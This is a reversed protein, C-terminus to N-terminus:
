SVFTCCERSNLQLKTENYVSNPSPSRNLWERTLERVLDPSHAAYAKLTSAVLHAAEPTELYVLSHLVGLDNAQISLSLSRQVAGWLFPATKMEELLAQYGQEASGYWGEIQRYLYMGVFYDYFRELRFEVNSESGQLRSVMIQADVLRQFSERILEGTDLEGTDYVRAKLDNGARDLDILGITKKYTGPGGAFLPVLERELMDKDQPKIRGTRLLAGMYEDIIKEAATEPPLAKGACTNAIMWLNLPERILDRVVPKLEAYGTKLGYKVRYLDYVASLEGWSFQGLDLASLEPLEDILTQMGAPAVYFRDNALRKGTSIKRWTEPRSTIMVKLWPWDQLLLDNVQELLDAAKANENIGDLVLVLKGRQQGALSACIGWFDPFEDPALGWQKRFAQTVYESLGSAAEAAAADIVLLCINPDPSFEERLSLVFSSKGAGSRGTLVFCSKASHLFDRFHDLVQGRQLYVEPDYKGAATSMLRRSIVQADAFIRLWTIDNKGFLKQKRLEITEILETFEEARDKGSISTKGTHTLLYILEDYKNRAQFLAVVDPDTDWGTLLPELQLYDGNGDSLYYWNPQLHFQGPSLVIQAPHIGMHLEATVQGQDVDLIRLLNYRTLFGLRSFLFSLHEKVEDAREHWGGPSGPLRQLALSNRLAVMRKITRVLDERPHHEELRSVDWYFDYLEPLFLLKPYGEYVKMMWFFVDTWTQLMGLPLDRVILENLHPDSINEKDRTLYESILIITLYRLGHTFTALGARVVTEPDAASLLAQYNRAIFHPMKELYTSRDDSLM